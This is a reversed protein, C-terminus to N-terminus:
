RKIEVKLLGDKFEKKSIESNSAIPILKFYAKDGAFAKVELSQELKKFEIDKQSKVGPLKITITQSRGTSEVKMEPEETIKPARFRRKIERAVGREADQRVGLIEKLEPEVKRYEGSTNVEIQPPRGPVNRITISIGRGRSKPMEFRPFGFLESGMMSDVRQFEKEISNFVSLPEASGIKSGCKPCFEWDDKLGESCHRCKKREFM